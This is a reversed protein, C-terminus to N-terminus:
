PKYKPKSSTSKVIEREILKRHKDCDCVFLQVDPTILANIDGTIYAVTEGAHDIDMTKSIDDVLHRLEHQLSNMFEAPSSHLGVVMVTDRRETNSYTFGTDLNREAMKEYVRLVIPRPCRIRQLDRVIRETHYDTVAYYIRLFWDYKSIYIDRIIM